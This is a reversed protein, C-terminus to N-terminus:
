GQFENRPPIRGLVVDEFGVGVGFGMFCEVIREGVVGGEDFFRRARRAKATVGGVGMGRGGGGKEGGRLGLLIPAREWEALSFTANGNLWEALSFTARGGGGEGFVGWDGENM